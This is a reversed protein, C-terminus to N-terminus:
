EAAINSIGTQPGIGMLDCWYRWFGRVSSETLLHDDKLPIDGLGDMALVSHADAYDGHIGLQLLRGAEGDEMSVLGGPGVLNVQKARMHRLEASDDAYGFYTWYLEYETANRPRIQRTALTNSLRQVLLNPFFACLLVAREDNMEVIYENFSPDQLTLGEESRRTATTVPTASSRRAQCWTSSAIGRATM